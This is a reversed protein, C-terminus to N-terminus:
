NPLKATEQTLNIITKNASKPGIKKFSFPV